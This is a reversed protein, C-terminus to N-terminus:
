TAVDSNLRNHPIDEPQLVVTPSPATATYTHGRCGIDTDKSSNGAGWGLICAGFSDDPVSINGFYSPQTNCYCSYHWYSRSINALRLANWTGCGMFETGFSPIDWASMLGQVNAIADQVTRPRGYYHFALYVTKSAKMWEVTDHTIDLGSLGLASAWAPVGM